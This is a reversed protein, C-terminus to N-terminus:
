EGLRLQIIGLIGKVSFIRTTRKGSLLAADDLRVEGTPRDITLALADRASPSKFVYSDASVQVNIDRFPFAM